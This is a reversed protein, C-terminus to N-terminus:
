FKSTRNMPSEIGSEEEVTGSNSAQTRRRSVSPMRGSTARMAIASLRGGADIAINEAGRGILEM